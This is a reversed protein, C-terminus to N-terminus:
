SLFALGRRCSISPDLGLMVTQFGGEVGGHRAHGVNEAGFAQHLRFLRRFAIWAGEVEGAIGDGERRIAVHAQLGHRTAVLAEQEAEAIGHLATEAAGM